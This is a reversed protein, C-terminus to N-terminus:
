MGKRIPSRLGKKLMLNPFPLSQHVWARINGICKAKLLEPLRKLDRNIKLYLYYHRESHNHPPFVPTIFTLAARLNFATSTYSHMDNIRLKWPTM